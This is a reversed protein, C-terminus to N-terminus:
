CHSYVHSVHRRTSNHRQSDRRLTATFDGWVTGSTRWVSSPCRPFLRLHTWGQSNSELLFLVASSLTETV